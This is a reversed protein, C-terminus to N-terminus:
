DVMGGVMPAFVPPAPTGGAAFRGLGAPPVGMGATPAAFTKWGNSVNKGIM